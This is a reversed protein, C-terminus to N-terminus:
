KIQISPFDKARMLEYAISLSISLYGAVDNASLVPPLEEKSKYVPLEEKKM